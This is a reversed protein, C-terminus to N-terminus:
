LGLTSLRIAMAQESVKFERALESVHDDNLRGAGLRSVRQSLLRSPMLLTAAFQNAEVERPDIGLTRNNSRATVKWGEDVHVREGPEFQHRLRFHGIEHAITFRQRVLPDSERVCVMSAGDRTVLLGSVDEGLESYVVELGLGKAVRIVDVPVSSIGLHDVLSEAERRATQIRVPRRPAPAKKM